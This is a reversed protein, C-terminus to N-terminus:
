IMVKGCNEQMFCKRSSLQITQNHHLMLPNILQMQPLLQNLTFMDLQDRSDHKALMRMIVLKFVEM